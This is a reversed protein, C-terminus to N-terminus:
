QAIVLPLLSVKALPRNKLDLDAAISRQLPKALAQEIATHLQELHAQCRRISKSTRLLRRELKAIALPYDALNM